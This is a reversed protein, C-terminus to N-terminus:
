TIKSEVKITEPSCGYPLKFKRVFQRLIHGKKTKKDQKGEVIVYERRAKVRLEDKKFEKVNITLEFKQKGIRITPRVARQQQIWNCLKSQLAIRFPPQLFMIQHINM